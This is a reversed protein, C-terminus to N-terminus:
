STRLAYHIADALRQAFKQPTWQTARSKGREILEHRLRPSEYLSWIATAIARESRPDVLLGTDGV